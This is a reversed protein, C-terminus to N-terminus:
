LFLVRKKRERETEGERVCMLNSVISVIAAAQSSFPFPPFKLCLIWITTSPAETWSGEEGAGIKAHKWM